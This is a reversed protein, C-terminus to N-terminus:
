QRQLLMELSHVATPGEDFEQLLKAGSLILWGRLFKGDTDRSCVHALPLMTHANVRVTAHMPVQKLMYKAPMFSPCLFLKGIGLVLYDVEM